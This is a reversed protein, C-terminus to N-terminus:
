RREEAICLFNKLIQPGRKTLVSEPHFQVGFTPQDRHEIAMLLGDGSRATIQLPTSALSQEDLVLSHYRTGEFPSPVDAFLRGGSHHM